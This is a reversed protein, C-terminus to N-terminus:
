SSSIEGGGRQEHLKEWGLIDMKKSRLGMGMRLPASEFGM